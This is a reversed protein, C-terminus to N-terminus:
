FRRLMTGKNTRFWITQVHLLLTGFQLVSIKTLKLSKTLYVMHIFMYLDAARKNGLDAMPRLTTIQLCFISKYIYECVQILLNMPISSEKFYSGM